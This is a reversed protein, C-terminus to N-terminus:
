GRAVGEDLLEIVLQTNEGAAGQHPFALVVRQLGSGQDVFEIDAEEALGGDFDLVAAVEEGECGSDHPANEDIMGAGTQSFPAAAASSLGGQLIGGGGSMGIGVDDSDILRELAQLLDIGALGADDFQFEEDAEGFGLDSIREADATCSDFAVPAEGLTPKLKLKLTGVM